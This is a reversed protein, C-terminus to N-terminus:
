PARDFYYILSVIQDNLTDAPWTTGTASTSFNRVRGATGDASGDIATDIMKAAWAPIGYVVIANYSNAGSIISGIAFFDNFNHRALDTNPTAYSLVRQVRMDSWARNANTEATAPTACYDATPTATTTYGLGSGSTGVTLGFGIIGNRDCDGPMRGQRDYYTWMAAEIGKLDNQLRKVKANNILETGKLIAGLIIGIIVLVIALEVLTFGKEKRKHNM